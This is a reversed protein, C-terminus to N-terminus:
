AYSQQCAKVGLRHKCCGWSSIINGLLNTHYTYNTPNLSLSSLQKAHRVCAARICVRKLDRLSPLGTKVAEEYRTAQVISSADPESM